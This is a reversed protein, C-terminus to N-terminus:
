ETAEAALRNLVRKTLDQHQGIRFDAEVADQIIGERNIAYTIRRVGLGLPGNAQYAKIALRDPDALLTFPLEHQERFEAHSRAGQPSIGVVRVGAAALDPHVDRFMCAEKTCGPTADAPYFYLILPAAALLDALKVQNGQDDELEFEPAREGVRLM